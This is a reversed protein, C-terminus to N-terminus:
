RRSTLTEEGTRSQTGILFHMTKSWIVLKAHSLNELGLEIMHRQASSCCAELADLVQSLRPLYLRQMGADESKYYNDGKLLIWTSFAKWLHKGKQM